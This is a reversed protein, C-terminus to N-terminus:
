KQRAMRKEKKAPICKWKYLKSIRDKMKKWTEEDMWTKVLLMIELRELYKWM